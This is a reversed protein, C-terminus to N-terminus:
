EAQSNLRRVSPASLNTWVSAGCQRAAAARRDGLQRIQHLERAEENVLSDHGHRCGRRTASERWNTAVAAGSLVAHTIYAVVRHCREEQLHLQAAAQCLTGATDVMDDIM